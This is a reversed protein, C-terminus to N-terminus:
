DYNMKKLKVMSLLSTVQDMRSKGIYELFSRETKHGTQAMLYTIPIDNYYNTSFSRRGIHSKILMWKPYMATIDRNKEADNLSGEELYTLGAIKCVEKIYENYKQHSIRRPFEGNRKDLVEEVEQFVAIRIPQVGKKQVFDLLKGEKTEIIMASNCKMFDSIRQGLYCSIVLWDRANELSETPLNAIRIMEIEEPKLYNTIAKQDKTKISPLSVSTPVGQNRAHICVSKVFKLSRFIYSQKYGEKRMFKVFGDAWTLDVDIVNNIGRKNKLYREVLNRMSKVKKLYNLKAGDENKDAYFFEFYDLIKSPIGEQIETTQIAKYLWETNISSKDADLNFKDSVTKLMGNMLSLIYKSNADKLSKPQRKVKSWNEPNIMLSTKAKADINADRIRIYIHSPNKTSQIFFNISAM